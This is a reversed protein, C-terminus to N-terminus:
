LKKFNKRQRRSKFDYCKRIEGIYRILSKHYWSFSNFCTSNTFMKVTNYFCKLIIIQVITGVVDFRYCKLSIRLVNYCFILIM